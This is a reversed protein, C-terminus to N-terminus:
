TATQRMQKMVEDCIDALRILGVPQNKETVLVSLTQWELMLHIVDCIHSEVDIHEKFPLMVFRVPLAAAGICMESLERQLNGFHKLATEMISESVGARKLAYQDDVVHSRPELARMLAMQGLKGIIKGNKDAVLVAMYPQKGSDPNRRSEDLRIVADLVTASANVIPYKDIPVMIDKAINVSM